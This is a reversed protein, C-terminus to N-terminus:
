GSKIADWERKTEAEADALAEDISADGTAARGLATVIATMMPWYIADLPVVHGNELAEITVKAYFDDKYFPDDAM